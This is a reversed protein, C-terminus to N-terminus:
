SDYGQSSLCYDKLQPMLWPALTLVDRSVTAETKEQSLAATQALTFSGNLHPPLLFQLNLIAGLDGIEQCSLEILVCRHKLPTEVVSCKVCTNKVEAIIRKVYIKALEM